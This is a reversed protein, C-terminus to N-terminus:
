RKPVTWHYRSGGNGVPIGRSSEKSHHEANRPQARGLQVIQVIKVSCRYASDTRVDNAHGPWYFRERLRSLTKAEGLHGGLAGDHLQHLIDSRSVKPIVAQLHQNGTTDEFQRYLVDDKLVCCNTGNNLWNQVNEAKGRSIQRTQGRELVCHRTSQGLPKMMKNHSNCTPSARLYLTRLTLPAAAM